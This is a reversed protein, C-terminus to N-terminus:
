AAYGLYVSKLTHGQGPLEIGGVLEEEIVTGVIALWAVLNQCRQIPRVPTDNQDIATPDGEGSRTM